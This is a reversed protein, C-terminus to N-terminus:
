ILITQIRARADELADSHAKAAPSVRVMKPAQISLSDEGKSSGTSAGDKAGQAPQPTEAILGSQEFIGNILQTIFDRRQIETLSIRREALIEDVLQGIQNSMERRPLRALISIDVQQLFISQIKHRLLDQPSPPSAVTPKVSSAPAPASTAASQGSADQEAAPETQPDNSLPSAPDVRPAVPFPTVQGEGESRAIRRGFVPPKM